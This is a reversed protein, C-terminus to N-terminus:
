SPARRTHFPMMSLLGANITKQAPGSSTIAATENAREFSNNSETRLPPCLMAPFETQSPPSTISRERM